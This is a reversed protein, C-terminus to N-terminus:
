RNQAQIDFHFVKKPWYKYLLLLRIFFLHPNLSNTFSDGKQINKIPIKGNM